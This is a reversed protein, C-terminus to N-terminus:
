HDQASTALLGGYPAVALIHEVAMSKPRSAFVKDNTTFCEKATEANSVVLVNHVGLKITFIPGYKDAMGGLVRHPLEPGCLLGLHGILPWRGKAQPPETNKGRKGKLIQLLFKLLFAFFIAVISALFPLFLKM